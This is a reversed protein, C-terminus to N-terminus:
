ATMLGTAMRYFERGEINRLALMLILVHALGDDDGVGAGTEGLGAAATEVIGGVDGHEAMRNLVGHLTRLNVELAPVPDNASGRDDASDTEAHGLNPVKEPIGNDTLSFFIASGPDRTRRNAESPVTPAASELNANADFVENCQGCRVWGDSVRLQDPVVKFMTTCAPCKTILSM